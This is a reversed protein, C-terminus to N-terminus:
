PNLRQMAEKILDSDPTEKLADNWVQLAESEQGSVWLVEGLHSAVEHDPFVAFARRLNDVAEEYRGLKYQAWALSDIIAADDPSIAIAKEILDLAEEFRTTRDALMYGLHNLARSDDPLLTIIRRLDQESSPMDNLGDHMLVRTFLLDTDNPYRQLMDNLVVGARDFQEAQLLFSAEINSFLVELRPQGRSLDVLWSHAEEYRGLQISCRTAQQQAAVFNQASIQVSRYHIIAPELLEQQEAIYGLYFHSDDPRHEVEVLRAFLTNAEDYEEMEIDLLAISYLTEYDEPDQEVLIEFQRKADNFEEDQILLRAYNFRLPKDEPFRRVGNRLVRLAREPQELRQLLQAEILLPAPSNGYNQRLIQLEILADEPQRNQDLLEVIAYQISEEDPYLGHLQRLNEILRERRDSPLRQTRASVAGFDIQGGLDIVNAMHNVADEFRGADLLQFSLMLHPEIEDPAIETWLLGLQVLANIDGSASAFQSARRIIGLDRTDFALDFYSDSAESVNGQQGSLESIITEYLQEESFTGYEIEEEVAVEVPPVSAEAPDQNSVEPNESLSAISACNVLFVGIAAITILKPLYYM